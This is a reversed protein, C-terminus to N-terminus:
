FSVDRLRRARGRNRRSSKEAAGRFEPKRSQSKSDFHWLTSGNLMLRWWVSTGPATGSGDLFRYDGTPQIAINWRDQMKPRRFTYGSGTSKLRRLPGEYTLSPGKVEPPYNGQEERESSDKYGSLVLRGAKRAAEAQGKMSLMVNEVVHECQPNGALSFGSHQVRTFPEKEEKLARLETIRKEIEKSIGADQQSRESSQLYSHREVPICRM